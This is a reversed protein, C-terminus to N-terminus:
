LAGFDGVRNGSSGKKMVGIWAELTLLAFIQSVVIPSFAPLGVLPAFLFVLAVASMTRVVIRTPVLFKYIVSASSTSLNTALSEASSSSVMLVPIALLSAIIKSSTSPIFIPLDVRMSMPVFWWYVVAISLLPGLFSLLVWFPYM